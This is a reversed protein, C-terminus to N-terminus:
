FTMQPELDIPYFYGGLLGGILQGAVVVAVNNVVLTVLQGEKIRIGNLKAPNAVVGLSAVIRQFNPAPILGQFDKFIEWTVGGAGQVFGGGVYENALYNIIGNYGKPVKFQVVIAQAGIAPITVYAHERFEVGEPPMFNIFPLRGIASGSNPTAQTPDVDPSLVASRTCM